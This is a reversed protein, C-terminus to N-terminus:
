PQVGQLAAVDLTPLTNTHAIIMMDMGPNTANLGSNSIHQIRPITGIAEAYGRRKECVLVYVGESFEGIHPNFPTPHPPGLQLSTVPQLATPSAYLEDETPSSATRSYREHQKM